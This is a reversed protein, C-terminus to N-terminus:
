KAYGSRWDATALKASTPSSREQEAAYRPLDKLAYEFATRIETQSFNRDWLETMLDNIIHSLPEKLHHPNRTALEACQLAFAYAADCCSGEWPPSEQETM